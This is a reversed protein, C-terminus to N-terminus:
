VRECKFSTFHQAFKAATSTGEELDGGARLRVGCDLGPNQGRQDLQRLFAQHASAAQDVQLVTRGALADQLTPLDDAGAAIFPQQPFLLSSGTRPRLVVRLKDPFAKRSYLGRLRGLHDSCLGTDADIPQSVYRVFRLDKRARIIFYAGAQHLTHLRAFDLYGRDMVYFAGPEVVLV